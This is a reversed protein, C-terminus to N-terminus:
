KKVLFVTSFKIVISSELNEKVRQLSKEPFNENELLASTIQKALNESIINGFLDIVILNRNFKLLNLICLAGKDGILNDSLDIWNIKFNIKLAECIVVMKEDNIKNENMQGWGKLSNISTVKCNLIQDFLTRHKQILSSVFEFKLFEM